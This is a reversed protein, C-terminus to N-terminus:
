ACCINDIHQAKLKRMNHFPINLLQDRM